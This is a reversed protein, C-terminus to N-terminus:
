PSGRLRGERLREFSLEFRAPVVDPHDIGAHGAVGRGAPELPEVPRNGVPGVADDDLEPRVVHQAADIRGHGSAISAM